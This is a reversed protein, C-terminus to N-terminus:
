NLLLDVAKVIEVIDCEYVGSANFCNLELVKLERDMTECIDMVYAKEPGWVKAMENAFDIVEKPVDSKLMLMTRFKYQSATVVKGGVIFCRWEKHIERIPAVFIEIDTDFIYGGFSVKEFFRDVNERAVCSGTFDKLDNNPRIFCEDPCNEKLEKLTTAYGDYNFLNTGYKEKWLSSKFKEPTFFVGPNWNKKKHANKIMTTSGYAIASGEVEVEPLDDAFPVIEIPKWKTDTVKFADMWKDLEKVLNQQMIWTVM